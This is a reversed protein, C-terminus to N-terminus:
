GSGVQAIYDLVLSGLGHDVAVNFLGYLKEADDAASPASLLKAELCQGHLTTLVTTGPSSESLYLTPSTIALAQLAAAAM